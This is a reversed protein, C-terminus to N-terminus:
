PQEPTTAETDEPTASEPDAGQELGDVLNTAESIASFDRAFSWADKYSDRLASLFRPTSLVSAWTLGSAANVRSGTKFAMLMDPQSFVTAALRMKIDSRLDFLRLSLIERMQQGKTLSAATSGGLKKASEARSTVTAFSALTSFAESGLLTQYNRAHKRIEQSLRRGSEIPTMQAVSEMIGTKSLLHMMAQQRATTLTRGNGLKSVIDTLDKNSSKEVARSIFGEEALENAVDGTIGEKRVKAVIKKYRNQFTLNREVSANRAKILAKRLEKSDPDMFYNQLLKKDVEVFEDVTRPAVKGLTEVLKQVDKFSKGFLDKRVALPVKNFESAARAFSITDGVPDAIGMISAVMNRQVKKWVIQPDAGEVSPLTAMVKKLDFYSKSQRSFAGLVESDPIVQRPNDNMLKKIIPVKFKDRSSNYHSNARDLAQRLDPTPLTDVTDGLARNVAGYLKGLANLDSTGIFEDSAMKDAIKSRILRALDIPVGNPHDKILGRIEGLNPTARTETFAEVSEKIIKPRKGTVPDVLGEVEERIPRYAGARADLDDIVSLADDLKVAFRWDFDDGFNQKHAEIAKRVDAYNVESQAQFIRKTEALHDRVAQGAIDTAEFSKGAPALSDVVDLLRDTSAALVESSAEESRGIVGDIEDQYSRMVKSAPTLDEVPINRVNPDVGGLLQKAAALHASKEQLKLRRLNGSVLPTMGGLYGELALLDSDLLITGATPQYTLGFKENFEKVAAQYDLVEKDSLVDDSRRGLFRPIYGSGLGAMVDFTYNLAFAALEQHEPDPDLGQTVRAARDQVAIAGAVPASAKLMNILNPKKALPSQGLAGMKSAVSLGVMTPIIESAFDAGIDKALEPLSVKEPDFLVEKVRGTEEDKVPMVIQDFLVGPIIKVPNKRVDVGRETALKELLEKKGETTPLFSTRLRDLFSAGSTTDVGSLPDPRRELGFTGMAPLPIDSGPQLGGTVAPGGFLEKAEAVTYTRSPAPTAEDTASVDELPRTAVDEVALGSDSSGELFLRAEEESIPM